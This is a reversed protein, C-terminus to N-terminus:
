APALAKAQGWLGHQRRWAAAAQFVRPIGDSPTTLHTRRQPAGARGKPSPGCLAEARPKSSLGAPSSDVLRRWELTRWPRQPDPRKKGGRHSSDSPHSGEASLSVLRLRQSEVHRWLAQLLRTWQATLTGQGSEPRQGLSVPGLRKGRRDLVAVTAPSGEQWDGHRRPVKVGDRGVSLTPQLRGPSARAQQLGSLVHDVQAAHRQAARGGRLRGLLKRLPACSWPGGHDPTLMALGQRQPHEAAWGGIREARAPTAWGAASGVTRELPHLARLGPALPAYRRRWVVVPGCRTALATRQQRRRRSAQGKCWLRAPATDPGDPEVHHLVWAVMHRGGERLRASLERECTARQQPTPEPHRCPDMRKAGRALSGSLQGVLPQLTTALLVKPPTPPIM